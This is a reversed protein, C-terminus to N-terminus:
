CGESLSAIRIAAEPEAPEERGRRGGRVVEALHANAQRGDSRSGIVIQRELLDIM